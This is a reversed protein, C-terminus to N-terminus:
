NVLIIIFRSSILDFDRWVNIVQLTIHDLIMLSSVPFGSLQFLTDISSVRIGSTGLGIISGFTIGLNLEPGHQEDKEEDDENKHEQQEDSNRTSKISFILSSIVEKTVIVSFISQDDVMVPLFLRLGLREVHTHSIWIQEVELFLNGGISIVFSYM